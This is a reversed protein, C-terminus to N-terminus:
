YLSKKLLVCLMVLIVRWRIVYLPYLPPSSSSICLLCANGPLRELIGVGAFMDGNRWTVRMAFWGKCGHSKILKYIGECSSSRGRM